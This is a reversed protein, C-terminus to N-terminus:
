PMICGFSDPMPCSRDCAWAVDSNAYPTPNMDYPIPVLVKQTENEDDGDSDISIVAETSIGPFSAICIDDGVEDPAMKALTGPSIFIGLEWSRIFLVM